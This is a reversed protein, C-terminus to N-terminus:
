LATPNASAPWRRVQLFALISASRENVAEGLLDGNTYVMYLMRKEANRFYVKAAQFPKASEVMGSVSALGSLNASKSAQAAARNRLVLFGSLAIAVALLSRSSFCWVKNRM